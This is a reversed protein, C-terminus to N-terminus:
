KSGSAASKRPKNTPTKGASSSLDATAGPVETLDKVMLNRFYVVGRDGLVQLALYGKTFRNKDDLFDVVTKDNVKIIIRNGRVIIHQTWWTDDPVLQDTVRVLSGGANLSGTRNPDGGTNNAQAEYGKLFGPAPPAVRFFMGSNSGNPLMIDAKFECDTFEQKMFFLHSTNGHGVLVGNQITWSEPQENAQWGDLSRGDFISIFGDTAKGRALKGKAVKATPSTAPVTPALEALRKEVRSKTLGTLEDIALGYWYGAGERLDAKDQGKAKEAADWWADGLAVQAASESPAAMSKTGLEKFMADSSLALHGSGGAWDGKTFCLYRGLALNAAPDEPNKDLATRATEAAEWQQKDTAISKGQDVAQKLLAPNKAKRAATLATDTMRKAASWQESAAAEDAQALAAEAITKNAATAQFKAAMKELAAALEEVLDIVFSEALARVAKEALVPDPIEIALDRARCLMAYRGAADDASQEAQQLLKEALALKTEPTKAVTLDDKFVEKVVADAKAAASADPVPQREPAAAAAPAKDSPATQPAAGTDAILPPPSATLDKVMLNRFYVVDRDGLVQLALYGKTFRNKDDLFDVVTKDNVKIIIRNGRVIIHQTWWTDDPVLQDTVRVLSGGANAYLSGTRNPDGGTNNAQAEYGKPFGPAPPAVRFWMGSNSGNPLMIDAKFECDTFEQKMFFLHSASGRGVLVGNQITWAGPSENAQWGDLSRGDFISIFGASDAPVRLGTAMETRPAAPTAQKAINLPNEITRQPVPPAATTAEKVPVPASVVASQGAPAAVGEPRVPFPPATAPPKAPVTQQQPVPLPSAEPRDLYKIIYTVLIPAIITGFAGGVMKATWGWTKKVVATNVLTEAPKRASNVTQNGFFTSPTAVVATGVAAPSAVSAAVPQSPATPVIMGTGKAVLPSSPVPPLNATVAVAGNAEPCAELAAVVENMSQFRDAPQKVLMRQFVRNLEALVGPLTPIAAQQHATLRKMLTDGPYPSHGTLLYCLTCGLSYIDARADAQRTDM